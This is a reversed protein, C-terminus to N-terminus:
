KQLMYCSVYFSLNRFILYSILHNIFLRVKIAVKESIKYQLYISHSNLFNDETISYLTILFEVM